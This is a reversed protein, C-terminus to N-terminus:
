RQAWLWPLASRLAVRWVAWGHRGATYAVHVRLRATRAAAVIATQAPRVYRDSLGCEFWAPLGVYKHHALLWLPQHERKARANGDYLQRDSRAQTLHDVIPAALGSFDALASYVQPHRLALVLSCLGGESLGAVLWKARGVTRQYHNRVWTVVDGTLYSETDKGDATRICQSDARKSGNLDPMVVIPAQGHHAAAFANLTALFQGYGVWDLPQGPTGHLLELVPLRRGPDRVAAPPLYLWAPRPRFGTHAPIEVRKLVAGDAPRPVVAPRVSRSRSGAPVGRASGGAPATAAETPGVAVHLASSAVCGGLLTAAGIAAAVFM